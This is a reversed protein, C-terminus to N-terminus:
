CGATTRPILPHVSPHEGSNSRPPRSASGTSTVASARTSPPGPSGASTSARGARSRPRLPRARRRPGPAPVPPEDVGASRAMSTTSITARQDRGRHRHQDAARRGQEAARVFADVVDDVFVFDRTQNGDGFITPPEGALLLGAFIAVVGAEGHPDQRPGYVNALALATYELGHLERYYHLYDGVAKKAVGYPSMPRQPTRDRAIPLRPRARRLHTGGVRRVRGQTTGAPAPARSCTSRASSTSRPTSRGAAGGVGPRRGARRPPVRRRAQPTAILDTVAANRIDIRHFSFRATAVARADALNASRHRELPRRRRRGDLGRRPAPRRADLRHVRRRGHGTGEHRGKSQSSRTADVHTSPRRGVDLGRGVSSATASADRRGSHTRGLVSDTVEADASSVCRTCVAPRRAGAGVSADAGIAARDLRADPRRAGPRRDAGAGRPRAGADVTAGPGVWVGPATEVAAPTPAGARDAGALVDLQAELYKGPRASTSGTATPGHRLPSGPESSCGRSRRGSSRCTSGRRSAIRAGVARARLHRRQDLQDAGPGAAAERRVRDGRRRRADAGRRVGVPRRGPHARDDGGRRAGRPVRRARRPRPRHARRRQVRRAARRHGRRRLPDGGATGLPEHEVVFRLKM